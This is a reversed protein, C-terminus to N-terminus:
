VAANVSLTKIEVDVSMVDATVDATLVCATVDDGAQAFTFGLALGLPGADM